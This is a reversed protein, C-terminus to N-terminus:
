SVEKYVLSGENECQLARELADPKNINFVRIPVNYKHCQSFASIDMVEIRHNLAYEFDLEHLFKADKFHKPDKDYIGDVMTAKLLFDANLEVSRLSAASDTTVYPNGTGGSFVLVKSQKLKADAHDAHYPPIIGNVPIPSYVEADLQAHCLADKLALANLHTAIMGMHDATLRDIVEGKQAYGRGRLYNGGGVVIALEIPQLKMVNAIRKAIDLIYDEDIGHSLQGLFAEGSLKLVLRTM